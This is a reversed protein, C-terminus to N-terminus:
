EALGGRQRKLGQFALRCPAQGEICVSFYLCPQMQFVLPVVTPCHLEASGPSESGRNQPLVGPLQSGSLSTEGGGGGGRRGGALPSHGPGVFGM